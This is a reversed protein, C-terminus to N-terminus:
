EINEYRECYVLYRQKSSRYPHCTLLTIMEKGERIFIKSVENAGVVETGTVVYTLTEWFNKVQIKDGVQIEEINRFMEKSAMGRHGAIVCNTNDGGIPLSTNSMHTVGKAMSIENAGLYIPLSLSLREIYIYGVMNDEFGYSTLDICPAEYAEENKLDKQGEEFIRINYANMLEYLEDPRDEQVNLTPLKSEFQKIEEKMVAKFYSDAIMPYLYISLGILFLVSLLIIKVKKQM